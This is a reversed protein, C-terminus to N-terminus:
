GTPVQEAMGTKFDQWRVLLQSGELRFELPDMSRRPPGSKRRGEGDFTGGHCPCVFAKRDVRWAIACGNHPCIPSLVRLDSPRDGDRRVWVAHPRRETKWWARHVTEFSVSHWKAAPLSEITCIAQFPPSSDPLGLRKRLPPFFYGLGFFAVMLGVVALLSKICIALFRRRPPPSESENVAM